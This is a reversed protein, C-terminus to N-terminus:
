QRFSFTKLLRRFQGYSLGCLGLNPPLSNWVQPGAAAFPLVCNDSMPTPSSSVTTPWTVRPPTAPCPGISSLRYSSSSSLSSASAPILLSRGIRTSSMLALGDGIRVGPRTLNDARTLTVVVSGVPRAASTSTLLDTSPM